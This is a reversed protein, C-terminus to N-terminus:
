VANRITLVGAGNESTQTCRPEPCVHDWNKRWSITPVPVGVARCKLIIVEGRQVILSDQPPEVVTPKASFFHKKFFYYNSIRWFFILVAASKTRGTKVIQFGFSEWTMFVAMLREPWCNWVTKLTVTSVPQFVSVEQEVPSNLKDANRGPIGDIQFQNFQWTDPM